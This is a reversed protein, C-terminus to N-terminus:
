DGSVTRSLSGSERWPRLAVAADSICAVGSVPARGTEPTTIQVNSEPRVHKDPTAFNQGNSSFTQVYMETQHHGCPRPLIAAFAPMNRTDVELGGTGGDDAATGCMVLGIEAKSVIRSHVPHAPRAPHAPKSVVVSSAQGQCYGWDFVRARLAAPSVRAVASGPSGADRDRSNLKSQSNDPSGETSGACTNSSPRRVQSCNGGPPAHGATNSPEATPKRGSSKRRSPSNM